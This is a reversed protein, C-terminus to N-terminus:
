WCDIDAAAAACRAWAWGPRDVDIRHVGASDLHSRSFCDLLVSRFDVSRFYWHVGVVGDLSSCCYCDRRDAMLVIEAPLSHRDRSSGKQLLALNRAVSASNWCACCHM